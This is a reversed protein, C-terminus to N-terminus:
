CLCLNNDVSSISNCWTHLLSPEAQRPKPVHYKIVDHAIVQECRYYRDIFRSGRISRGLFCRISSLLIMLISLSEKIDTPFLCKSFLLDFPYCVHQLGSIHLAKNFQGWRLILIIICQICWALGAQCLEVCISNNIKKKVPTVEQYWSHRLSDLHAWLVTLTM